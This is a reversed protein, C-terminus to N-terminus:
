KRSQLVSAIEATEIEGQLMAVVANRSDVFYIGPPVMLPKARTYVEAQAVQTDVHLREVPLSPPTGLASQLATWTAEVRKRTCACAKEKDLFVIKALKPAAPAVSPAAVRAAALTPSPKTRECAVLALTLIVALPTTTRM